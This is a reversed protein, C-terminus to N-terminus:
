TRAEPRGAAENRVHEDIWQRFRDRDRAIADWATYFANDRAYYGHTYSPKAGGPAVAVATLTWSPLVVANTGTTGLDDVIEEVTAIARAASLVAEKQVGVIGAILVNGARDAKQAHIIAVDPRLAPVAALREGTFPCDISKIRPNVAALESGRYGRFVACPLGAAGAAYANAMASHSHEEIELPAPWGREVADRLRHLSGVGPNGGWSFVLKRACGCGIMQDYILDPTMRILTLGTLRQRIIEHGAAFPILHTFGELAVSDGSRVHRSIADPLSVLQAM